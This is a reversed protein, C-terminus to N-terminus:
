ATWAYGTPIDYTGSAKIQTVVGAGRQRIGTGFGRQYFSDILPYDPVAGRVLRLGRLSANAHERLGVLNRADESGGSAFGLMYGAPILDNEVVMWPGYRGQVPLGLITGPPAPSGIGAQSANMLATLDVATLAWTPIPDAQIFSYADASDVDFGRITATQASNVMMIMVSGQQWSYGHHKLHVEMADLDGSDVTAGGSVLYHNHPSSPTVGNFAPPVTGDNNYLPYVNYNQGNSTATRIRSVRTVNNFITKMIDTFVRRNDAELILNNLMDTQQSSADALYKWTFRQAIDYWKFSYAMQSAVPPATRVGRPEGFESAEEFDVTDGGQIVDEIVQTVPFTLSARLADRRDNYLQLARAYEAWLDNLPRGDSTVTVIDGAQNYGEEAGSIGPIFGLERLEQMSRASAGALSHAPVVLPQRKALKNM